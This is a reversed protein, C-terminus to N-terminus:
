REAKRNGAGANEKIKGTSGMLQTSGSLPLQSPNRGHNRLMTLSLNLSTSSHNSSNYILLLSHILSHIYDHNLSCIFLYFISPILLRPPLSGLLCVLNLSEICSTTFFWTCEQTLVKTNATREVQFEKGLFRM